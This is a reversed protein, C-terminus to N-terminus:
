AHLSTANAPADYHSAQLLSQAETGQLWALFASAGTPNPANALQAAYFVLPEPRFTKNNITLTIDPHDHAATDSSLNIDSPLTIYPLKGLSATARYSFTADLEGTQLKDQNGAGTIAPPPADPAGLLIETLEPYGYKKAALMMVFYANRGGPDGAPNGHAIHIDPQRLVDWWSAKGTAAAAFQTAYRSQPSYVLVMDTRAIPIATQALGAHLVSLMPGPTIPIFIDAHLEGTILSHAVADAGQAHAHLDLHLTRAAAAKLPGETMPRFSGASAVELATLQQAFIRRAALM